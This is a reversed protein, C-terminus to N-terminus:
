RCCTATAESAVWARASRSAPSCSSCSSARSWRGYFPQLQATGTKTEDILPTYGPVTSLLAFLGVMFLAVLGAWRLGRRENPTLASKALEAKLEEDPEGGWKGLRPEIVRDTIFWILPTFLVVISLIFWWNGLPNMNWGPEIIRAAEQTFGFLLVDMQGPTINGAFGGSVGAFAAALGAIPHRGVAAFIIAALPIFVVYAADSAHHSVMGIVGVIPTLIAKPANRLSGRILASFLGAREAVSAGLIM